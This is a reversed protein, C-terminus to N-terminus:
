NQHQWCRDSGPESKRKCRKGKTTVAACRQRIAPKATEFGAQNLPQKNLRSVVEQLPVWGEVMIRAWGAVTDVVSLRSADTFCGAVPGSPIVYITKPFSILTDVEVVARLSDPPQQARSVLALGMFLLSVLGLGLRM